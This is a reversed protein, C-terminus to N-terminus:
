NLSLALVTCACVLFSTLMSASYKHPSGCDPVAVSENQGFQKDITRPTSGGSTALSHETTADEEPRRSTAADELGDGTTRGAVELTGASSSIETAYAAQEHQSFDKESAVRETSKEIAEIEETAPPTSHAACLTQVAGATINRLAQKGANYTDPCGRTVEELCQSYKHATECHPRKFQNVGSFVSDFGIDCKKRQPRDLCDWLIRLGNFSEAACIVQRYARYVDELYTFNKRQEEDCDNVISMCRSKAPFRVSCISEMSADLEIEGFPPKVLDSLLSTTISEYCMEISKHRCIHESAVLLFATCFVSFVVCIDTDKM